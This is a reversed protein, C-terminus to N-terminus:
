HNSFLGKEKMMAELADLEERIQTTELIKALAEAMKLLSLGSEAPIDGTVVANTIISAKQHVPMDVDLEPLYVTAQGPKLTPVTRDLLIKMATMDGELAAQKTRELLAPVDDLLADRLQTVKHITGKPKGAPNGSQGAKFKGM